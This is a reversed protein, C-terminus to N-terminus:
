GDGEPLVWTPLHEKAKLNQSVREAEDRTPVPGVRVRWRGDAAGSAPKLYVDYGKERLGQAVKEAAVSDGFAGVQVAFGSLAPVPAPSLPADSVQSGSGNSGTQERAAAANVTKSATSAVEQPEVADWDAVEPESDPASVEPLAPSVPATFEPQADPSWPVVESEGALHRVVLEPEESVVGVVLGFVFGTVVLVAVGLLTTLWGGGEGSRGRNSREAM